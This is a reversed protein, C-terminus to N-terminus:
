LEGVDCVSPRVTPRVSLRCAIAIGRKASFHMARYFSVPLALKVATNLGRGEKISDYRADQFKLSKLHLGINAM